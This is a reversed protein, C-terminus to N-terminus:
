RTLNPPGKGTARRMAGLDQDLGRGVAFPHGTTELGEAVLDDDGVRVEGGMYAVRERLALVSRRSARAIASAHSSPAVVGGM